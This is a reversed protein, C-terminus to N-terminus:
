IPMVRASVGGDKDALDVTITNQECTVGEDPYGKGHPQAMAYRSEVCDEIFRETRSPDPAITLSIAITVSQSGQAQGAQAAAPLLAIILAALTLIRYM